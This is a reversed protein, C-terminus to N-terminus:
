ANEIQNELLAVSFAEKNYIFLVPSLEKEKYKQINNFDIEELM